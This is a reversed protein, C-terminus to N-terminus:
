EFRQERLSNEEAERKQEQRVSQEIIVLKAKSFERVEPSSHKLLEAFAKSRINLITALSGSYSGPWTHKFISEVVRKKNAAVELLAIAHDSLVVRKPNDFPTVQKDGAVPSYPSITAAVSQIRQEDGNCWSVLRDVAVLNLSTKRPSESDRFLWNLLLGGKDEGKIARNLLLEPFNNILAGTIKSLEFSDLRFTNVGECLLDVIEVIENEPASTSLCENIVQNLGSLRHLNIQELHMSLLKLIAERGICRLTDSPEYESDKDIFFRMDLIKLTSFVGGDLENIAKLIATLNSDSITEYLRGHSIIEFRWADLEGARAVDLLKRAGWPAIQTAGLLYVFYPKLEPIELVREQLRRALSPGELHAAHIFGWFLTPQVQEQNQAQMLGVLFEFTAIHDACGKALGQGFLCLADTHKEWLRPALKELYVPESAALEGLKVIKQHVENLDKNRNEIHDWTNTFAYAEIESYPDSPAALGELAELRRLLKPPYKKEDFYITKKISRWIEPWSGDNAHTRVVEEMSDFCHAFSWLGDFNEALLSKARNRVEANDSSLSPKLLDVFNEYWDLKDQHTKPSWGSDRKRAGFDYTAFSTWNSVEFVAHFLEEAIEQHRSNGSTLLRKLFNQRRLPTAQTGSLYLAFLNRLKGVISNNNEGAEETEAFKLIIATARDFSEDEYALNCLLGVFTSFYKNSRSAFVPNISASELATLVTNPFVPAIYKLAVILEEDCSAIDHLPGGPQVWTSALQRALEFDHLYGLRHACSKLLRLNEHKFLENNIENPTSNQLARQALRNALAHPLVARWNGRQQALQRRLLEAHSRNLTSRDMGAIAALVGLEDNLETESVNFSYVLSLIAANELLNDAIGKRQSFLRQFLAEDTFNILTEDSDVRSALAIAVRANGGAFEAVKNGNIRGLEPFRKQVLKSATNQSSPELHIVETEEPRDDSIDYEITLLSLKASNQSVQKQLTRHIEPPCNDLVIYTSFDNAILYSILESATPTLDDGLDAYIVNASALADECVNDEFLAQAFRTKGVGSLGVIRVTSGSPRLRDRTLKIGDALAVPEKAQSNADIVCPYDDLLFDDDQDTPTAAWRGFPSWGSLPKGLRSRAWLAVGPHQRLWTALRDRGYFDLLLDNKNALDAVAEQMGLLRQSLMKDSCDDIGSVIIYAGKKDALDAIIAKVNGKDLMENTCAAKGMSNKKVQFGTNERPDCGLNLRGGKVHVDLGGDPAEQAGGWTVCSPQIGQQILEAECLRGILERLDGDSLTSIDNTELEFFRM